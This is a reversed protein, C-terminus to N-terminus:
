EQSKLCLQTPVAPVPRERDDTVIQGMQAADSGLLQASPVPVLLSALSRHIEPRLSLNEPPCLYPVSRCFTPTADGMPCPLGWVWSLTIGIWPFLVWLFMGEDGGGRGGLNPIGSDRFTDPTQTPHSSPRPGLGMTELHVLGM